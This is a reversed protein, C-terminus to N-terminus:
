CIKNEQKRDQPNAIDKIGEKLELGEKCMKEGYIKKKPAPCERETYIVM